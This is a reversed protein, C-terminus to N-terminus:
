IIGIQQFASRLKVVIDPLAIADLQNKKLFARWQAQKITDTAFGDSLGAPLSPPMPTTRRAFTAEIARRLEASDLTGEGLLVSLDFYDKMRTNTM